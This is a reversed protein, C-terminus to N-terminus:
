DLFFKSIIVKKICYTFFLSSSFVFIIQNAIRLNQLYNGQNLNYSYWLFTSKIRIELFITKSIRKSVTFLFPFICLVFVIPDTLFFSNCPIEESWAMNEKFALVIKMKDGLSRLKSLSKPVDLSLIFLVFTVFLIPDANQFFHMPYGQKLSFSGWLGVYENLRM